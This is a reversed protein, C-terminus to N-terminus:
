KPMPRGFMRTVAFRGPAIGFFSDSTGGRLLVGISAKLLINGQPKLVTGAVTATHGVFVFLPTAFSRLRDNLITPSM